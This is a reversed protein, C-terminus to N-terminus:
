DRLCPRILALAPGPATGFAPGKCVQLWSVVGVLQPGGFSHARSGPHQLVVLVGRLAASSSSEPFNSITIKYAERATGAPRLNEIRLKVLKWESFFVKSPSVSLPPALVIPLSVTLGSRSLISSFDFFADLLGINVKELGLWIRLLLAWM